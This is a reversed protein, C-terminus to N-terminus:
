LDNDQIIEIEAYANTGEATTVTIEIEDIGDMSGDDILATRTSAGLTVGGGIATSVGALVQTVTVVATTWAGGVLAASIRVARAARVPVRSTWTLYNLPVHELVVRNRETGM